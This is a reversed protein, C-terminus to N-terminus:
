EGLKVGSADTWAETVETFQELTLTDTLGPCYRDFIEGMTDVLASTDSTDLSVLRRAERLPLSGLAPLRHLEDSGELKFCFEKAQGGILAFDPKTM